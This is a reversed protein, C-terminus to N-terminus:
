LPACAPEHPPPLQECAPPTIPGPPPTAVLVPVTVRVVGPCNEFLPVATPGFPRETSCLPSVLQAPPVQECVPESVPESPRLADVDPLTVRLPGPWYVDLPVIVPEPPLVALWVAEVFQAPEVQEREPVTVPGSPSLTVCAPLAVRTAGPTTVVDPPEVTTCPPVTDAPPVVTIWPLVAAPPATTTVPPGTGTGTGM